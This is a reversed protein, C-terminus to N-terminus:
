SPSLLTNLQSSVALSVAATGGMVIFPSNPAVQSLYQVSDTPLSDPNTLVIPLDEASALAAASLADVFSGHDSGDAAIIAGNPHDGFYHSDIALATQVRTAGALRIVSSSSLVSAVQSSIKTSVAQPGGLVVVQKIHDAALDQLTSSPLATQGTNVLFVPSAGQYMVPSASLADIMTAGNAIFATTSQSLKHSYLYQDILQATDFRNAGEFQRIVTLGSSTLSDIVKNSIAVPGGVVYVTKAGLAGIAKLVSPYLSGAPTLLVPAHLAGALGAASIADPSPVGAGANALVVASSGDPYAAEAAQVSTGMRTAGALRSIMSVTGQPVIAFEALHWTHFTVTTGSVTTGAIPEWQGLLSNWYVASVAGISSPFHVIVTASKTFFYPNSTDSVEFAQLVRIATVDSPLVNLATVTDSSDATVSSPAIVVTITIGQDTVVSATSGGGPTVSATITGTPPPTTVGSPPPTTTSTSAAAVVVTFTATATSAPSESDQVQVTFSTSGAVAPTGSLVGGASLSLGAPLTSGSTLSWTYPAVGGTASLTASYSTGVTGGPVSATTIALPATTSTASVVNMTYTATETVAPSESDQLQVTFVSSGTATLTGSLIGGASLSLGAPLTSGSTLSWTYPAVGGTASLTASYSTGVTGGPVSATTIALPAITVPASVVNLTYTAVDSVAPNESDTVQVSFQGSGVTTPTGSITGAASLSLGAPLASGAVLSWTYPAVGGTAGLTASYSTGVTGGPVSTTTIALSATTTKASAVNITYSAVDSVAPNESDTVDVSFQDSGTTTPTGSIVGSTSLQLGAPLASGSALSWTYPTVGGTADLTQSYSTGVTAGPLSATTITLAPVIPATLNLVEGTVSEGAEWSVSPTAVASVGDVKFTVASGLDSAVGQVFLQAALGTGGFQSSSSIAVSGDAQGDLYATVTGSTLPAGNVTLVSGSVTMPLLPEPTTAAWATSSAAFVGCLLIVGVGSRWHLGKM